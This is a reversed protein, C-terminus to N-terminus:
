ADVELIDIMGDADTDGSDHTYYTPPKKAYAIDKDEASEGNVVRGDTIRIQRDCKSALDADHTVIILTIGKKENLEFLIKTFLSRFTPM